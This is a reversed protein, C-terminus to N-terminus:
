NREIFSRMEEALRHIEEDSPYIPYNGPDEGKDLLINYRNEEANYRNVLRSEAQQLLEWRLDYPNRAM